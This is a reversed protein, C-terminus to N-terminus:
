RLAQVSLVATLILLTDEYTQIDKKFDDNKINDLMKLITATKFLGTKDLEEKSMLSMTKEDPSNWIWTNPSSYGFKRRKRVHRPVISKFASKLIFKENLGFMKFLTPIKLAAGMMKNDLFPLRLEVSNAMSNRDARSLIYNPLRTKLEVYVSQDFESLHSLKNRFSNLHTQMLSGESLSDQLDDVFIKSMDEQIICWWPYWAPYVGFLEQIPSKKDIIGSVNGAFTELYINHIRKCFETKGLYYQLTKEMFSDRIAWGIDSSFVYRINNLVFCIYGGLLEDAGEGVLVVKRGKMRVLNSLAQFPIDMPSSQPQEISQITDCFKEGNFINETQLIESNIKFKNITKKFYESEDFGKETFAISFSCLDNRKQKKFNNNLLGTVITSDIGGSLYSSIPVEGICHSNVADNMQTFLRRTYKPLFLSGQDYKDRFEPQWYERPEALQNNDFDFELISAPPVHFIGEFATANGPIYNFIMGDKVNQPNLTRQFVGTALLGKIESCCGFYEKTNTYFLPKIGLSDRGLIIKKRRYDIITFAFMGELYKVFDENDEEYLHLIVECDSQTTFKYGLNALTERLERYNYIEGNCVLLINNAANFFPQKGGAIDVISLRVFGLGVNERFHEGIDDPGRHKISALGKAILSKDIQQHSKNILTLHGCM